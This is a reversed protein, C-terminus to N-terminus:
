RGHGPPAPPRVANGPAPAEPSPRPARLRSRLLAPMMALVGLLAGIILAGVVTLSFPVELRTLYLDLWVPQHNRSHFALGAVAAALAVLVSLLKLM